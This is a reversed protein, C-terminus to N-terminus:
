ANSRKRKVPGPEADGLDVFKSKGNPFPSAPSLGPNDMVFLKNALIALADKHGPSLHPYCYKITEWFGDSILPPAPRKKTEDAPRNEIQELGRFQAETIGYADAWKKVTSSRPDGHKGSLFRQTTPQPVGSKVELSYPDDGHKRMLGKLIERMKEMVLDYSCTDDYAFM